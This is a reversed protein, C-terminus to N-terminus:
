LMQAQEPVEGSQQKLRTEEESHSVWRKGIDTINRLSLKGFLGKEPLGTLGESSKRSHHGVM